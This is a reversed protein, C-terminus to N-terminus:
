IGYQNSKIIVATAIIILTNAISLSVLHTMLEGLPDYTLFIAYVM